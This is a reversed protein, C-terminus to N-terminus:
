DRLKLAGVQDHVCVVARAGVKGSPESAFDNRPVRHEFFLGARAEIKPEHMEVADGAALACHNHPTRASLSPNSGELPEDGRSAKWALANSWEAVEGSDVFNIPLGETPPAPAGL